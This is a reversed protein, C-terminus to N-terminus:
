EHVFSKMFNRTNPGENFILDLISVRHEFPSWLQNYEAYGTYDMWSVSINEKMALEEDFYSKAAPGSLYTTAHCQKCIDLLRENQGEALNFDSSWSIKTEIGLIKNITEIFMYNVESLYQSNINLYCQEFIGRYENFYRSRSYNQSLSTWHKKSWMNDVIKIDKICHSLREHKVPITLWKVGQNTKILNRNRWDNKTYQANDYIVFEDVMNILDFYGKWPIYNSQLIAISKKMKHKRSFAHYIIQVM